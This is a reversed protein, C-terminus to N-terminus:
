LYLLNRTWIMDLNDIQTYVICLSRLQEGMWIVGNIIFLYYNM